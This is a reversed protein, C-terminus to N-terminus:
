CIIFFIYFPGKIAIYIFFHVKIDNEPMKASIEFFLPLGVDCYSNAVKGSLKLSSNDFDPWKRLFNLKTLFLNKGFVAVLKQDHGPLSM